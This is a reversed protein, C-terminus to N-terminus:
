ALPPRQRLFRTSSPRTRRPHWRRLNPMRLFPRVPQPALTLVAAEVAAIPKFAGAPIRHEVRLEFWPAWTAAFRGSRPKGALRRAAQLRLVLTARVLGHGEGLLRRVIATGRNFPANSVV